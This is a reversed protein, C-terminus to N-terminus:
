LLIPQAILDDVAMEAIEFSHDFAKLFWSWNKELNINAVSPLARFIREKLSRAYAEEYYLKSLTARCDFSIEDIDHAELALIEKDNMSHGLSIAHLVDYWPGVVESPEHLYLSVCFEWKQYWFDDLACKFAVYGSESAKELKKIWNSIHERETELFPSFATTRIDLAADWIIHGDPDDWTHDIKWEISFEPLLKVYIHEVEARFGRSLGRCTTWLFCEDPAFGLISGVGRPSTNSGTLNGHNHGGYTNPPSKYLPGSPLQM